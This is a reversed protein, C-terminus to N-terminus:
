RRGGEESGFTDKVGEVMQATTSRLAQWTKEGAVRVSDLAGRAPRKATARKRSGATKKTARKKGGKSVAKAGTRGKATARKGTRKKPM